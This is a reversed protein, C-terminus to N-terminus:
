EEPVFIHYLNKLGAPTRTKKTARDLDAQYIWKACKLAEVIRIREFGAGAEKLAVPYFMYVRGQNVDKYWGARNTVPKEDHSDLVSFRSDGHKAIFESVAQLIQSEENQNPGAYALYRNFAILAAELVSGKELPLLQYEIGLEGALGIIALLTAARRELNNSLGESFRHVLKDLLKGFDQSLGTISKIDSLRLIKQPM